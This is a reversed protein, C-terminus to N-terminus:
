APLLSVSTTACAITWYSGKVTTHSELYHFIFSRINLEIIVIYSRYHIRVLM